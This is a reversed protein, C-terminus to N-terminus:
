EEVGEIFAKTWPFRDGEVKTWFPKGATRWADVALGTSFPAGKATIILANNERFTGAWAEGWHMDFFKWHSTRLTKILDNVYHYCFGRKKIGTNILVNTILASVTVRYEQSIDYIKQVVAKALVDAEASVESNNVDKHLEILKKKLGVVHEWFVTARKLQVFGSVARREKPALKTKYNQRRNEVIGIPIVKNIEDIQARYKQLSFEAPASQEEGSIEYYPLRYSFAPKAFAVFLFATLIITFLKM